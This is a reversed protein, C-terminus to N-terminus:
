RDRAGEVWVDDSPEDNMLLPTWAPVLDSIRVPAVPEDYLRRAEEAPGRRVGRGIVRVTRRFDGQPVAVVDGVRIIHNAKTVAVGNVAIM